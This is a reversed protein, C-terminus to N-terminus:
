SLDICVQNSFFPARDLVYWKAQETTMGADFLPLVLGGEVLGYM